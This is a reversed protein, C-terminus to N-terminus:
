IHQLNPQQTTVRHSGFAKQELFMSFFMSLFMIMYFHQVTSKPVLFVIAEWIQFESELVLVNSELWPAISTM